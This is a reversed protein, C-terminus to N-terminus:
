YSKEYNERREKELSSAVADAMRRLLWARLSLDRAQDHLIIVLEREDM